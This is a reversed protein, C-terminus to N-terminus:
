GGERWNRRANGGGVGAEVGARVKKEMKEAAGSLVPECILECGLDHVNTANVESKQHLKMTLSHLVSASRAPRGEVDASGV